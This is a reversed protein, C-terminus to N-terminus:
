KPIRRIYGVYGPCDPSGSPVALPTTSATLTKITYNQDGQTAVRLYNANSSPGLPVTFQVTFVSFQAGTMHVCSNTNSIPSWVISDSSAELWFFYEHGGGGPDVQLSFTFDYTGDSPIPINPSGSGFSSFGNSGTDTTIPLPTPTNAIVNEDNTLIFSAFVEATSSSPGTPGTV